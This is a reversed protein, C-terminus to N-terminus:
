AFHKEGELTSVASFDQQTFIDVVREIAPVDMEVKGMFEEDHGVLQATLQLYRTRGPVKYGCFNEPMPMFGIRIPIMVGAYACVFQVSREVEDLAGDTQNATTRM